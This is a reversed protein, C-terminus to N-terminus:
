LGTMSFIAFLLGLAFSLSIAGFLGGLTSFTLFLLSILGLSNCSLYASCLTLYDGREGYLYTLGTGKSCFGSGSVISSSLGLSEGLRVSVSKKSPLTATLLVSGFYFIM